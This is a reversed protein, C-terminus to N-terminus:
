ACVEKLRLLEDYAALDVPLPARAPLTPMPRPCAALVADLRPVQGCDRRKCLAAEVECEMTTAAHKLIQLYEREATRENVAACLAEYAWQFVSSPFLDARFRYNRFAGPKRVLSGIVHRYNIHHAREDRLWPASLQRVGGYFVEIHEAYRHVRVTRGILRSPVSYIRRKVNITSWSRVGCRYETYEPLWDVDLGRMHKLEEALRVRRGDNAQQLVGHLFREYATQGAFDRSGRLLLHQEIRRKLAGNLSEVDGNEHACGVQIVRPVMGFHDMLDLYARNYVRGDGAAEAPRHTAASSHDMWHEAPVRGLRRLANQIGTRLAVLSESHCISGWEWNSYTLVSHCLQHDFREGAITIGLRGMHTFDTSMRAGPRHEQAFYVEQDPGSLARWERVRRQFTRLQGEQYKDPRERCLWEYVTKAELEPCGELMVRCPEWDEAFPDERTRWTREVAMESPLKRCGLYKRATKRDMDARLASKTVKGTREYEEMLKRVKRDPTIMPEGKKWFFLAEPV